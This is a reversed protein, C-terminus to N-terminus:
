GRKTKKDTISQLIKKKRTEDIPFSEIAAVILQRIVKDIM